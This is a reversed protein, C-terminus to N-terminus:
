KMLKQTLVRLESRDPNKHRLYEDFAVLQPKSCKALMDFAELIGSETIKGYYAQINPYAYNRLLERTVM